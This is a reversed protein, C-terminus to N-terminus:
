GWPDIYSGAKLKGTWDSNLMEFHKYVLVMLAKDVSPGRASLCMVFDQGEQRPATCYIGVCDNKEEFMMSVKYGEGILTDLGQIIKDPGMKLSKVHKKHEENLDCEVWVTKAYSKPAPMPLKSAM